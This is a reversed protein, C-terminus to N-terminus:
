RGVERDILLQVVMSLLQTQVRIHGLIERLVREQSPRQIRDQNLEYGDRISAERLLEDLEAQTNM